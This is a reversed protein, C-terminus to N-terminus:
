HFKATVNKTSYLMSRSRELFFDIWGNQLNKFFLGCDLLVICNFHNCSFMWNEFDRFVFGVYNERRLSILQICKKSTIQNLKMLHTNREVM